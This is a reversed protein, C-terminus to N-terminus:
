EGDEFISPKDFFKRMCMKGSQRKPVIVDQM